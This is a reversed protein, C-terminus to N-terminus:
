GHFYLVMFVMLLAIEEDSLAELIWKICKLEKVQCIFWLPLFNMLGGRIIYM